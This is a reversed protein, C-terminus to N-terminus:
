ESAAWTFMISNDTRNYVLKINSPATLTLQESETPTLNGLMDVLVSENVADRAGIKFWYPVNMILNFLELSPTEPESLSTIPVIIPSTASVFPDADSLGLSDGDFSGNFEVGHAYYISYSVANPDQSKTWSLICSTKTATLTASVDAVAGGSGVLTSLENSDESQMNYLM